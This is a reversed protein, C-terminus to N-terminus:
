TPCRVISPHVTATESWVIGAIEEHIYFVLNLGHTTTSSSDANSAVGACYFLNSLTTDESKTTSYQITLPLSILIDRSKGPLIFSGTRGEGIKVNTSRDNVRVTFGKMRTPIWNESNDVTLNLQWVAEYIKSNLDTANYPTIIGLNQFIISNPWRPWVFFCALGVLIVLVFAVFVLGRSRLGSFRRKKRTLMESASLQDNHNPNYYYGSKVNNFDDHMMDMPVMNNNNSSGRLLSDAGEKDDAIYGPESGTSGATAFPDTRQNEYPFFPQQQQQQRLNEEHRGTPAAPERAPVGYPDYPEYAATSVKASSSQSGARMHMYNNPQAM